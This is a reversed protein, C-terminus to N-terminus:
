IVVIRAIDARKQVVFKDGDKLEIFDRNNDAVLVGPGRNIEVEIKEDGKLILPEKEEHTNNFAIGIGNDIKKRAISYFYAGSGYPTAIVLGDGILEKYIEKGDVFLSFRAAETPLSNRLVIDNVGVLEKGNFKAGLKVLEKVKFKGNKILKAIEEISHEHCNKCTKSDRTLVKLVGPFMRESILFTGDGGICFVIEPNESYEYGEKDLIKRAEKVKEDTKAVVNYKMLM